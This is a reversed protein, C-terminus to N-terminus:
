NVNLGKFHGLIRFLCTHCNASAIELQVDPEVQPQVLIELRDIKIVQVSAEVAIIASGM